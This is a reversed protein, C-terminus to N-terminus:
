PCEEAPRCCELAERTSDHGMGCISCHLRYALSPLRHSDKLGVPRGRPNEPRTISRPRPVHNQTHRQRWTFDPVRYEPDPYLKNLMICRATESSMKLELTKVIRDPGIDPHKKAFERIRAVEHRYGGVHFSDCEMNPQRGRM